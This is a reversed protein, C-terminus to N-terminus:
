EEDGDGADKAEQAQAQDDAVLAAILDRKTRIQSKDFTRGADERRKLEAKLGDPGDVKMSQYQSDEFAVAEDGETSRGWADRLDPEQGEPAMNFVQSEQVKAEEQPAETM